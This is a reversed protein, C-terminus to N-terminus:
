KGGDLIRRIMEMEEPPIPRGNWSMITDPDESAAKLDISTPGLIELKGTLSAYNTNLVKAVALISPKSPEYGSQNWKYLANISLGAKLATQQLSLGRLKAIKKTNEFLLTM